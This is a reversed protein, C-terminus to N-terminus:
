LVEVKAQVGPVGALKADLTILPTELAEALALYAADAPPVNERLEWMRPVFAVHPYRTLSMAVLGDLADAARVATVQGRGVRRRVAGVVEIDFVHPVHVEGAVALRRGISEGAARLLVDVAVSADLVIM